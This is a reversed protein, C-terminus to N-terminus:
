KAIHVFGTLEVPPDSEPACRNKYTAVWFYVGDPLAKGNKKGDWSQTYDTSEFMLEGWRNYIKISYEKAYYDFDKWDSIKSVYPYYVDNKGDGNPTFINASSDPKLYPNMSMHDLTVVSQRKCGNLYWTFYYQSGTTPYGFVYMSSTSDGSYLLNPLPQGSPYSLWIHPTSQGVQIPYQLFAMSDGDCFYLTTNLTDQPQPPQTITLTDYFRCGLSDEMILIYTGAYVSDTITAGNTNISDVPVGTITEWYFTFGPIGSNPTTTISGLAGYCPANTTTTTATITTPVLTVNLTTPCNAASTMNVTFVDGIQASGTYFLTDNNSNPIPNGLPDFWQYVAYNAPAILVITGNGGPCFQAQAQLQTCGADIWAMGWHGSYGCDKTNFALTVSQNLYPALDIGVTVWCLYQCYTFPAPASTPNQIFGSDNYGSAV